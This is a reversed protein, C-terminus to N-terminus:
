QEGRISSPPCGSTPPDYWSSERILLYSQGSIYDHLFSVTRLPRTHDSRLVLGRDPRHATCSGCDGRHPRYPGAGPSHNSHHRRDRGIGVAPM